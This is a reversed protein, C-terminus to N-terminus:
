GFGSTLQLNVPQPLPVAGLVAASPLNRPQVEVSPSAQEPVISGTRNTAPQLAPRTQDYTTNMFALLASSTPEPATAVSDILEGESKAMGSAFADVDEKNYPMPCIADDSLDDSYKLFRPFDVFRVFVAVGLKRAIEFMTGLTWGRYNADELRSVVTQRKDIIIGFETQSREGRFGRMQRALFRRSHAEVYGHRYAADHMKEALHVTRRSIAPFQGDDM